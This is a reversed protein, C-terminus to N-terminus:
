GAELPHQLIITEDRGAGTSIITVPRELLEAVRDLYALAPEPIEAYNRLGATPIDWGPMEEYIPECQELNEAGYPPLDIQEGRCQYGICLRV